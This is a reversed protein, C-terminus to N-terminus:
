KFFKSALLLVKTVILYNKTFLVVFCKYVAELIFSFLFKSFKSTYSPIPRKKKKFFKILSNLSFKNKNTLFVSVRYM